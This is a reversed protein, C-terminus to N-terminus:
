KADGQATRQPQEFENQLDRLEEATKASNVRAGEPRSRLEQLAFAIQQEFNPRPGYLEQMKSLRNANHGYMGRGPPLGKAALYAADHTADPNFGSEVEAAATLLVAENHTAGLRRATQYHEEGSPSIAGQVAGGRVLNPQSTVPPLGNKMREVDYQTSAATAKHLLE